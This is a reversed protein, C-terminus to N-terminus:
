VALGELRKADRLCLDLMPNLTNMIKKKNEIIMNKPNKKLDIKLCRINALEKYYKNKLLHRISTKLPSKLTWRELCTM